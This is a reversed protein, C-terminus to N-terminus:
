AEAGTDGANWAGAAAAAAAPCFGSAEYWSCAFPLAVETASGVAYEQPHAVPRSM